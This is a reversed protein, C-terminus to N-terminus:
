PTAEGAFGARCEIVLARLESLYYSHQWDTSARLETRQSGIDARIVDGEELMWERRRRRSTVFRNRQLLADLCWGPNKAALGAAFAAFPERENPALEAIQLLAQEVDEGHVSSWAPDAEWAAEIFEFIRPKPKAEMTLARVVTFLDDMRGLLTELTRIDSLWERVATAPGGDGLLPAIRHPLEALPATDLAPHEFLARALTTQYESRWQGEPDDGGSANIVQARLWEAETQSGPRPICARALLDLLIPPDTLDIPEGRLLVNRLRPLEPELPELISDLHREAERSLTLFEDLLASRVAPRGIQGVVGTANQGKLLELPQTGAVYVIGHLRTLRTGGRVGATVRLERNPAFARALGVLREAALMTRRHAKADTADGVRQALWACVLLSRWGALDGSISTVNWICRRAVRSWVPLLGLGDRGGDLKTDQYDTVFFSTM